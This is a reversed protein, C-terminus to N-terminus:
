VHVPLSQVTGLCLDEGWAKVCSGESGKPNVLRTLNPLLEGVYKALVECLLLWTGLWCSWFLLFSNASYM